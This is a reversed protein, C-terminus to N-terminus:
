RFARQSSICAPMRSSSLWSSPLRAPLAAISAPMVTLFQLRDAAHLLVALSPGDPLAWAATGARPLYDPRRTRAGALRSRNPQAAELDAM